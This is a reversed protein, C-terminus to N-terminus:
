HFIFNKRILEYGYGPDLYKSTEGSGIVTIAKHRILEDLDKVALNVSREQGTEDKNIDISLLIQKEAASADIETIGKSTIRELSVPIAKAM